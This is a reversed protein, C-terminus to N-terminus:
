DALTVSEAMKVADDASIEGQIILLRNDMEWVVSSLSDKVILTGTNEGIEITEIRSANESDVAVNNMSSYISYIISQDDANTYVINKFSESTSVKSFEYGEPIYAPVYENDWNITLNGDDATSDDSIKFSTYEDEISILCNLVKIRFAQVSMAASFTIVVALVAVAARNLVKYLKHKRTVSRNKQLHKILKKRFDRVANEPPLFDPENKLRENEELLLQGERKAAEHMVLRFLSDEYEEYLREYLMDPNNPM